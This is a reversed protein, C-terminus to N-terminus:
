QVFSKIHNKFIILTASIRTLFSGTQSSESALLNYEKSINKSDATYVIKLKAPTKQGVDFPAEMPQRYSIITKITSTQSIPLTVFIDENSVVAVDKKKGLWVPVRGIIQNKKVIRKAKFDRYAWNLIKEAEITRENNTKLGSIIFTVRRNGRKASGVLGYGAEETHGTKFGDAGLGKQLLPNRNEQKINNWTFNKESFYKYYFPFETRIRSAINILDVASMYHDKDPWGTSNTFSSNILGLNKAMKNM